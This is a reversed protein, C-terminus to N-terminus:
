PEVYRWVGANFNVTLIIWNKGDFAVAGDVAGNTMASPAADALWTQPGSPARPAHMLNPAFGGGNNAYNASSYLTSPTAFIVGSHPNPTAVSSFTDGADVSKAFGYLGGVYIVAKGSVLHQHDVFPRNGGHAREIKFSLDQWAWTWPWTSGSRTGKHVNTQEFVALLHDDDIWTVTARPAGPFGQDKWTLGGDNSEFLKGSSHGVAVVRHPETPHITFGSMDDNDEGTDYRTWTVGGDTSRWAGNQSCHPYLISAIMYSGDAPMAISSRGCQIPSPNSGHIGDGVNVGDLGLTAVPAWSVGYDQSKWLGQYNASVYFTGPHTADYAIATAGYNENPTVFSGALEMGSPTVETWVGPVISGCVNPAGNGGCTKPAVCM